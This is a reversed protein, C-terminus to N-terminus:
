RMTERSVRVAVPRNGARRARMLLARAHALYFLGTFRTRRTGGIWIVSQHGVRRLTELDQERAWAAAQRWERRAGRDTIYASRLRKM